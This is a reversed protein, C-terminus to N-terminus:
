QGTTNLLQGDVTVGNPFYAKAWGAFKLNGWHSNIESVTTHGIFGSKPYDTSFITGNKPAGITCHGDGNSGGTWYALSGEEYGSLKHSAPMAKWNATATPFGSASLGYWVACYHECMGPTTPTQKDYYSKAKESAQTPTNPYAATTAVIGFCVSFVLKM